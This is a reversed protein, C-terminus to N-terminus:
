RKLQIAEQMLQDATTISKASMQYGRQYVILDTLATGTDVNSTELMHDMVQGFKLGALGDENWALIPPGSVVSTQGNITRANMEFLNGGVKSLGQDNVFAAVGFRGIPETRGNTFNVLIIGDKNIVIDKMIGSATGDQTISKTTSDTYAFNSSTKGDESKTLDVTISGNNFPVEFPTANASGDANFTIESMVPTDSILAKGTSDYIETRVEWRELTAPNSNPDGQELLVYQSKLIFKEGSDSFIETNTEYTPVQLQTSSIGNLKIAKWGKTDEAPNTNGEGNIKQYLIGNHSVISDQKYTKGNEYKGISGIKTEGVQKWNTTDEAPSKITVEGTAPDTVEEVIGKDTLKQYIKGDIIVFSDKDYEKAQKDIYEQVSSSDILTWGNTDDLPNGAAVGDGNKQFIMGEYKVYDKDKYDKGDVFESLQGKFASELASENAKLGLKDALKGSVSLKIDQMGSNSLYLSCDVPNGESDLKLGLTLGTKNKVLEMLEGVSKFDVGYSFTYDTTAGGKEISFKLDKFNKADIPKGSADMLSNIDQALFKDMSFKGNEDQLATIGKPNQTRNLNIALNVETTLTPKYHLDKPIQLPELKSGGLAAYDAELNNTGTLTGDAAIKGLNIGYMYYGSSNVLYGEGDLSFSGDRTFFNQQTGTYNPSKIDFEGSKDLGVVFWGKGSYAVNFDGDAKVYTGDNSNIANSGITAGYNYDNNIPSNSNIFNLNTAFLSKFEPLNGRYGTTNVNAINNSTSDIGFQHTKIGSIGNYFSGVM